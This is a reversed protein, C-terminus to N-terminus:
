KIFIIEALQKLQEIALLHQEKLEGNHLAMVSDRNEMVKSQILSAAELVTSTIYLRKTMPSPYSPYIGEDNLYEDKYIKTKIRVAYLNIIDGKLDKLPFVIAYTGFCTYARLEPSRVAATSPTLIGVQIFGEKFTETKRHSFQGSSFGVQLDDYNLGREELWIRPATAKFSRIGIVCSQFYQKLLEQKKHIDIKSNM